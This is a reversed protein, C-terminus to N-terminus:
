LSTFQTVVVVCIPSPVFSYLLSIFNASIRVILTHAWNGLQTWGKIVRQVTVRWAGRDMTNELCCYQFPHGNGGRLSDKWGLSLLWIEQMEQMAPLTKVASGSPFGMLQILFQPEWPVNPRCIYIQKAWLTSLMKFNCSKSTSPKM